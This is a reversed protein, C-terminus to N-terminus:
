GSVQATSRLLVRKPPPGRGMSGRNKQREATTGKDGLEKQGKESLAKRCSGICSSTKRPVKPNGKVRVSTKAGEGHKKKKKGRSGIQYFLAWTNLDRGGRKSRHPM